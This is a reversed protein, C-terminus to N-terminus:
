KFNKLWNDFAKKHSEVTKAPGVVRIYYPGKPAEYVVALMRYDPRKEVAANPNFPQDKHLYTGQVDLYTVDHGAVKMKDVKAVDDIAKGDPPLLM